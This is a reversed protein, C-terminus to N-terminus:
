SSIPGIHSRLGTHCTCDWSMQPLGQQCMRPGQDSFYTIDSGHGSHITRCRYIRSLRKVFAEASITVIVIALFTKVSGM